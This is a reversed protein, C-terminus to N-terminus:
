NKELLPNKCYESMKIMGSETFRKIGSESDPDSKDAFYARVEYPNKHYISFDTIIGMVYTTNNIYFILGKKESNEESYSYPLDKTHVYVYEGVKFKPQPFKEKSLLELYMAYLHEKEFGKYTNKELLELINKVFDKHTQPITM